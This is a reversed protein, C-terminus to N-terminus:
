ILGERGGSSVRDSKVRSGEAKGEPGYTSSHPQMLTSHWLNYSCSEPSNMVGYLATYSVSVASMNDNRNPSLMMVFRKITKMHKLTNEEVSLCISDFHFNM